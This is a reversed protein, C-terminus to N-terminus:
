QHRIDADMAEGGPKGDRGYSILDYPGGQGPVHYELPQGWPDKLETEKAYPGLWGASNAPATVLAELNPPLSGVDQQYQEIKGALTDVEAQALHVKARDAGGLIKNLAFTGILAILGIVIIIEILTFGGQARSATSNRFTNRPKM